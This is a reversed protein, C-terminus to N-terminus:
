RSWRTDRRRRTQPSRGLGLRNRTRRANRRRRTLRNNWTWGPQRGSGRCRTSIGSRRCRCLCRCLGRCGRLGRRLNGWTRCLRGCGRRQRRDNLALRLWHRRGCRRLHSRARDRSGGRRLRLRLRLETGLRLRLRLRLRLEMGLRLRLRLRLEMGLRLRLRLETGLRLRLRVRLGRWLHLM